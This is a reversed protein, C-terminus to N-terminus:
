KSFEKANFIYKNNEIFLSKRKIKNPFIYLAKYNCHFEM